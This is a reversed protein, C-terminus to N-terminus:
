KLLDNVVNIVEDVNKDWSTNYQSTWKNNNWSLQVRSWSINQNKNWETDLNSKHQSCWNLIFLFIFSFIIKKM